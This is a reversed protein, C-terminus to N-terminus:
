LVVLAFLEKVGDAEKASGVKGAKLDKIVAVARTGVYKRLMDDAGKPYSRIKCDVTGRQPATIGYLACKVAQAKLDMFRSM